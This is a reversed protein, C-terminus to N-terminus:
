QITLTWGFRINGSSKNALDDIVYLSWTGAPQTGNFASLTAAYPGAPAPAPFVGRTGSSSPKYTGSVLTGTATLSQTATDDFTLNVNNIAATGGVDSMLLVKQGAPGVLLLELDSPRSHSLGKVEVVVKSIKVPLNKVNVSVPYPSAKGSNPITIAGKKVWKAPVGAWSVRAETLPLTDYAGSGDLTLRLMDIITGNRPGGDWVVVDVVLPRLAGQFNIDFSLPAPATTGPAIGTAIVQRPDRLTGRWTSPAGDSFNSLGPKAFADAPDGVMFVEITDYFGVGGTPTYTVRQTFTQAQAADALLLSLAAVLLFGLTNKIQGEGPGRPPYSTWPLRGGRRRGAKKQINETRM